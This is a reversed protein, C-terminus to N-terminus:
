RAARRAPAATPPGETRGRPRRRRSRATARRRGCARPSVRSVPAASVGEVYDLPGDLVLVARPEGAEVDRLIPAVELPVREVAQAAERSLVLPGVGDLWPDGAPAGPALDKADDLLPLCVEHDHADASAAGHVEGQEAGSRVVDNASRAARREHHM